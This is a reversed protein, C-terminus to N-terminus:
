KSSQALMNAYRHTHMCMHTYKNVHICGLTHTYLWFPPLSYFGELKIHIVSCSVKFLIFVFAVPQTIIQFFITWFLTASDPPTVQNSYNHSLLLFHTVAPILKLDGIELYETHYVCKRNETSWSALRESEEGVGHSGIHRGTRGHSLLNFRQFKLGGWNFKYSNGHNYHGECYCFM